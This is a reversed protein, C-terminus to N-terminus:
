LQESVGGAMVELGEALTLTDSLSSLDSGICKSTAFFCGVTTFMALHDSLKQFFSGKTSFECVIRKAYRSPVGYM